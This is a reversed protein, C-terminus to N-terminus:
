HAASGYDTLEAAREALAPLADLRLGPLEGKGALWPLVRESPLNGVLEDGAFPCGGAGSLAGEFWRVGAEWAGKMLPLWGDPRAHLHLGLSGPEPVTELVSTVVDASAKGVTDALAIRTVGLDRLRTVAAATVGPHWAEGYPNGFGMSLYVVLELSAEEAARVLEGVLRWSSELDRGTNRRQFTENVSLPYGVSTVNATGRARELGRENAIICLFEADGPRELSSVVEDSDAMQPVARPSVFSGLDLRRFGADLLAQLYARKMEAPITRPLSQWADRPCEVWHVLERAATM